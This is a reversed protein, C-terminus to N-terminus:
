LNHSLVDRHFGYENSAPGPEDSRIENRVEALLIRFIMDDVEILKGIRAVKGVHSLAFAHGVVGEHLAIDAILLKDLAKEGLVVDASDDVERGLAMHVVGDLAGAGKHLGVVHAREREDFRRAAVPHFARALELGAIFVAAEVMNGGVLHVARQALGAEKGFGRGVRGVGRIRGALGTRIEDHAGVVVGVAHVHGGGVARVVVAGFLVELLEDRDDDGLAQFFLANRHIAVARVDAVPQVHQVVALGDVEHEVRAPAAFGVIDTPMVLAVIQLDEVRDAGDEVLAAGTGVAPLVGLELGENGVARAM